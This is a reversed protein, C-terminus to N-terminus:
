GQDFKFSQLFDDFMQQNEAVFKKKGIFKFFWAIDDRVVMAGVMGFESDDDNPLLRIKKGSIGDVTLSDTLEELSNEDPAIGVQGAWRQANPIWKNAAALLQTVTIQPASKDTGYRLRVPVMMSQKSEIWGDPIDYTLQSQHPDRTLTRAGRPPPSNGLVMKGTEDFVLMEAADTTMTELDLNAKEQLPQLGLQRRWRNVNDLLDQNPGLSSVSIEVSNKPSVLTAMRMPKAPGLKWGEPLKWEPVGDKEYTVSDLISRWQDESSDVAAVPGTVKFFWTAGQQETFAVVMRTDVVEPQKPKSSAVPLRKTGIEGLDSRSKPIRYQQIQEPSECGFIVAVLGILLLKLYCHQM